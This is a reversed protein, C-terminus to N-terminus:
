RKPGAYAGAVSIGDLHVAIREDLRRLHLLWVYPGRVLVSRVHRLHAAEEVHQMVVVPVAPRALRDPIPRTTPPNM